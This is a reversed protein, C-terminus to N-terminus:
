AADKRRQEECDKWGEAYADEQVEEIFDNIATTMDFEVGIHQALKRIATELPVSYRPYYYGRGDSTQDGFRMTNEAKHGRLDALDGRIKELERECNCFLRLKM